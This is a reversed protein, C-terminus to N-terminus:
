FNVWAPLHCLPLRTSYSTLNTELVRYSAAIMHWFMRLVWNLLWNASHPTVFVRLKRTRTNPSSFRQQVLVGPLVPLSFGKRFLTTMEVNMDANWEESGGEIM